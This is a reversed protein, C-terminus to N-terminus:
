ALAAEVEQWAEQRLRADTDLRRALDGLRTPAAVSAVRARGLGALTELLRQVLADRARGARSATDLWRVDSEDSAARDELVRLSDDLQQLDLAADSSLRLLEPLVETLDADDMESAGGYLGSAMRIIDRLLRRAPGDPLRSLTERVGARVEPPLEPEAGARPLWIPAQARRVAILALLSAFLPTLPLMQPAAFFGATVGSVLVLVVLAVFSLPLRRWAHARSVREATVGRAALVGVTREAASGSLSVIPREGRAADRVDATRVAGGLSDLLWEELGRRHAPAAGAPLYVLADPDDAAACAPCTGLAMPDVTGCVDCASPVGPDIPTLERTLDDDALAPSGPAEPIARLADALARTTPFRHGPEAATARAVIADLAAPLEPRIGRPHYGGEAPPPPLSRSAREPLEGTLAYYLTLGLSYLDSRADGREGAMLEPAAYALTGVLGGTMTVTTQGGFRASGFDSLRASGGRDMLVNRPKVDRHLVGGEHALGLADALELGLRAADPAPLPGKERVREFLTPGDVYEMILFSRGEDEVYDHLKVINPHELERGGAAERRMRERAIHAMAPPPVLLKVAVAVRGDGAQGDDSQDHDPQSAPQSARLSARALYVVSHGGRGLEREIEYRGDVVTGPELYGIEGRESSSV